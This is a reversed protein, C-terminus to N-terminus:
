YILSYAGVEVWFNEWSLLKIRSKLSDKLQQTINTYDLNLISLAPLRPSTTIAMVGTDSIHKCMELYLGRLKKLSASAAIAKLSADTIKTNYLCLSHLAAHPRDRICM